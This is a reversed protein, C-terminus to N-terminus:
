PRREHGLIANLLRRCVGRLTRVENGRLQARLAARRMLRLPLELPVGREYEAAQLVQELHGMLGDLEGQTALDPVSAQEPTNEARSAEAVGALAIAVAQALNLSGADPNTPVCWRATCRSCEENTLGRDERGFVLARTESEIRGALLPAPVIGLFDNPRDDSVFRTLAVSYHTDDLAEDLTAVVRHNELVDRALDRALHGAKGDRDIECRPDVIVLDTCGFNKMVRAAAGVNEATQPSVLVVRWNSRSNFSLSPTM